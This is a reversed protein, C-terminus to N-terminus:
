RRRRIVVRRADLSIERRTLRTFAWFLIPFSVATALGTPLAYRFTYPLFDRLDLRTVVLFTVAEHLLVALLLIIAQTWANDKYVSDWTNGVAFGVISFSLMRLGTTHITTLDYLFGVAWGFVTGAVAGKVLAFYVVLGLVFLPRGGTVIFRAGATPELVFALLLALPFLIRV